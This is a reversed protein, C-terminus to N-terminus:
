MWSYLRGPNLIGAPDFVTKLRRQLRQQVPTVAGRVESSRDGGAFLTLASSDVPPEERIWRQAGGWDILQAKGPLLPENPLPTHRWLPADGSFFPLTRERLARWPTMAEDCREGGWRAATQQIASSAGSLRLYLHGATWCAASLPRPERARELMVALATRADLEYRLTLSQEPVPLVKLSVETILGLTGLAGAQLRSVDYGAVNKVVKGGFQLQQGRGTILTVGLTADRASGLWPRGPGSLNSAVTGGLTARGGCLPPDFPLCQQQEALLANLEAIPTGARATLVLEDPQYDIVGRHAAVDLATGECDRGLMHRKSGGGNIYLPTGTAAAERIAASYAQSLDTM